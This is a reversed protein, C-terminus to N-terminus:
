PRRYRKHPSELELPPRMAGSAQNAQNAMQIAAMGTIHVERRPRTGASRASERDQAGVERDNDRPRGQRPAPSSSSPPSQEDAEPYADACGTDGYGTVDGGAEAQGGHDYEGYAPAPSAHVGASGYGSSLDLSEDPATGGISDFVTEYPKSEGQSLVVESPAKLGARDLADRIAALKVSESEAGIAIGLLQKAMLEAANELRVRAAAKVHKAAGGHFRCTSGGQLAMNKCPEGTRSSHARCRRSQTHLPQVAWWQESWKTIPEAHEHTGPTTVVAPLNDSDEVEVAEVDIIENGDSM